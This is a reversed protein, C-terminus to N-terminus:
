RDEELNHQLSHLTGAAVGVSGEEVFVALLRGTLDYGRFTAAAVGGIYVVTIEGDFEVNLDVAGEPISLARNDFPADAGFRGLRDVRFRGLAPEFSLRYGHERTEDARLELGFAKTGPTPHLTIDLFGAFPMVGLTQTAYGRTSAVTAAPFDSGPADIARELLARTRAGQVVTLRRDPLQRLEHVVLNGGWLWSAGDVGATYNPSWGVLFRHHGDSITKAAYLGLGDLEDDAPAVWPGDLSSAMRYRTVTRDTLTSYVLYWLDGLRFLDPCEHMSFLGPAWIPEGITWTVGDPSTAQITAGRRHAPGALTQGAVLMRYLGAEEDYFVFPDRWEHPDYRTEDAVLAFDDDMEWTLLDTSTSRLITQHRAGSALPTRAFGTWYAYFVEGVRVISGTAASFHPDDPGGRRIAPGVEDFAVMDTSVLHWWDTQIRDHTDDAYRKLYFVHFTDDWFFPITDGVRAHDPKFFRQM